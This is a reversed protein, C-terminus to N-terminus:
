DRSMMKWDELVSCFLLEHIELLCTSLAAKQFSFQYSVTRMKPTILDDHDQHCANFILYIMSPNPIYEVLSEISIKRRVHFKLTFSKPSKRTKLVRKRNVLWLESNKISTPRLISLSFNQLAEFAGLFKCFLIKVSDRGFLNRNGNWAKGVHWLHWLLWMVMLMIRLISLLIM